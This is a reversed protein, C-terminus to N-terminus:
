PRPPAQRDKTPHPPTKHDQYYVYGGFLVLIASLIMFLAALGM